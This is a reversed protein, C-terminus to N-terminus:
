DREKEIQELLDLIKDETDLTVCYMSEVDSITKPAQVDLLIDTYSELGEVLDFENDSDIFAISRRDKREGLLKRELFVKSWYAYYAKGICKGLEKPSVKHDYLQVALLLSDSVMDERDTTPTTLGKRMDYRTILYFALKRMEEVNHLSWDVSSSLSARWSVQYVMSAKIKDSTVKRQQMKSTLLLESISATKIEEM